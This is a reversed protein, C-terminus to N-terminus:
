LFLCHAQRSAFGTTSSSYMATQKWSDTRNVVDVDYLFTKSLMKRPSCACSSPLLVHCALILKALFSCHGTAFKRHFTPKKSDRQKLCCDRRIDRVFARVRLGPPIEPVPFGARYGVQRRRLSDHTMNLLFMVGTSSKLTHQQFGCVM